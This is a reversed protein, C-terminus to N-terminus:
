LTEKKPISKISLYYFYITVGLQVELQFLPHINFLNLVTFLITPLTSAVLVVKWTESFRLPKRTITAILNGFVTYLFNYILALILSSVWLLVFTIGLVFPNVTQLGLIVDKFTDQDMGNLQSYPFQIPYLPISLYLGDELLSIGLTNGSVRKDIDSSTINGSPDFAFIISNTQYIFSEADEAPTIQNNEIEFDPINQAVEQGDQIFDTLLQNTQVWSPITLIFSLFIFYLIIKGTKLNRAQILQEPRSLSAKFLQFLQM